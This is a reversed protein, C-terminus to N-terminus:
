DWLLLFSILNMNLALVSPPLQDQRCLSSLSDSLSFIPKSTQSPNSIKINTPCRAPLSQRFISSSNSNNQNIGKCSHKRHPNNLFTQTPTSVLSFDEAHPFASVVLLHGQSFSVLFMLKSIFM